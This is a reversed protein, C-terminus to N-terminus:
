LGARHGPNSTDEGGQRGAQHEPQAAEADDGRERSLLTSVMAAQVDQRVKRGEPEDPREHRAGVGHDRGRRQPNHEAHHPSRTQHGAQGQHKRLVQARDGLGGCIRRGLELHDLEVGPSVVSVNPVARQSASWFASTMMM